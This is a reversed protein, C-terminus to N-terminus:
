TRFKITENSSTGTYGVIKDECSTHSWIDFTYETDPQLNTFIVWHFKSLKGDENALTGNMQDQDLYVSGIFVDGYTEKDTEWTIKISNSDIPQIQINSIKPPQEQLCKSSLSIIQLIIYGIITVVIVTLIFLHIFKLKM